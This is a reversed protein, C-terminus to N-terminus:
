VPQGREVGYGARDGRRRPHLTPCSDCDEIGEDDEDSGGTFTVRDINLTGATVKLIRENSHGAVRNSSGDVTSAGVGEGQITLSKNVVIQSGQILAYV